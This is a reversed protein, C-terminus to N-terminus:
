VHKGMSLREEVNFGLDKYFAEVSYNDARIQLNLKKCGRKKLEATAYAVLREGIGRRRMTQDVAVAYLWGRHGDYGAM